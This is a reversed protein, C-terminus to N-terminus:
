GDHHQERQIACTNDTDLDDFHWHDHNALRGYNGLQTTVLQRM